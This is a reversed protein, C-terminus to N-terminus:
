ELFLCALQLKFFEQFLKLQQIVVKLFLSDTFYTKPEIKTGTKM